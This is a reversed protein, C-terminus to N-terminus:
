RVQHFSTPTVEFFVFSNWLPVISHVIQHPQGYEAFFLCTFITIVIM